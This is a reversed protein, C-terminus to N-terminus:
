GSGVSGEKFPSDVLNEKLLQKNDLAKFSLTYTLHNYSAQKLEIVLSAEPM